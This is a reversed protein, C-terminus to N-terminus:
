LSFIGTKPKDFSLFGLVFITIAIVVGEVDSNCMPQHSPGTPLASAVVGASWPEM